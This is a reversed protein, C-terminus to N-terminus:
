SDAPCTQEAPGQGRSETGGGGGGQQTTRLPQESGVTDRGGVAVRRGGPSLLLSPCMSSLTPFYICLGSLEQPVLGSDFCLAWKPVCIIRSVEQGDNSSWISSKYM